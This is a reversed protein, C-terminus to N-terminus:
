AAIKFAQKRIFFIVSGLMLFLLTAFRNPIEPIATVAPCDGVPCYGEFTFFGDNFDRDSGANRDEFFAIYKNSTLPDGIRWTVMHDLGDLNDTPLSTVITFSSPTAARYSKDAWRFEGEIEETDMPTGVGIVNSTGIFPPTLDTFAGGSAGPFYGLNQVNGAQKGQFTEKFVTAGPVKEWVKDLADSIRTLIDFPFLIELIGGAGQVSKEPPTASNISTDAALAISIHLFFAIFIIAIFGTAAFGRFAGRKQKKGLPKNKQNILYLM